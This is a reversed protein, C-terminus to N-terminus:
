VEHREGARVVGSNQGDVGVETGGWGVGDGESPKEMDVDEDNRVVPDEEVNEGDDTEYMNEQTNDFEQSSNYENRSHAGVPRTAAAANFSRFQRGVEDSEGKPLSTWGQVLKGLISTMGSAFEGILNEVRSRTQPPCSPNVNVDMWKSFNEAGGFFSLNIAHKSLFQLKGFSGNPKMDAMLVTKIAEDSWAAVVFTHVPPVALRLLFSMASILGILMCLCSTFDAINYRQIAFADHLFEAIFKCWNMNKVNNINDQLVCSGASFNFFLHTVFVTM